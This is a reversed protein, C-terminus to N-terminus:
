DTIEQCDRLLTAVTAGVLGAGIVAGIASTSLGSESLYIALMVGVLGVTASRLFAAACILTADRGLAPTM